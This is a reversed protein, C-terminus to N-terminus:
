TLSCLPSSTMMNITPFLISRESSLATVVSSVSSFNLFMPAWKMSTEALVPSFRYFSNLSAQSYRMFDFSICPVLMWIVGFSRLSLWFIVSSFSRGILLDAGISFLAEWDEWGTLSWSAWIRPELSTLSLPLFDSLITLYFFQQQYRILIYIEIGNRWM